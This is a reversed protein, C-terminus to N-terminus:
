FRWDLGLEANNRIVRISAVTRVGLYIKRWESPLVHAIGLDVATVGLFYLAVDRDGPNRGMLPRGVPDAEVVNDHDRIQRTQHADIVRTVVNAAMLAKDLSDWRDAARGEQVYAVSLVLVLVLLWIKGKM